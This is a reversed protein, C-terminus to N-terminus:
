KDSKKETNSNSSEVGKRSRKDSKISTKPQDRNKKNPSPNGKKLDEDSTIQGDEAEKKKLEPKEKIETEGLIKAKMDEFHTPYDEPQFGNKLLLSFRTNYKTQDEKLMNAYNAIHKGCIRDDAPLSEESVPTTIGAAIIGKLCAAVKSTFPDNGTYLIMSEMGERIAKKGLLLGTLYCAPLSNLSGKWGNKFLERSHASAVVIDGALTPKLAQVGINQDSVKVTVFPRRSTLLATRKRYNTKNQRIRKLTHIYTM